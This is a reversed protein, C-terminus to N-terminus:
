PSVTLMACLMAIGLAPGMPVFHGEGLLQRLAPDQPTWRRGSAALAACIAVHLLSGVILFVLVPQLGLWAGAMACFMVDGGAFLNSGRRWGVLLFAASIAASAMALGQIREMPEAAFPSALLGIVTFTATFRDPLWAERWDIWALTLCLWFLVVAWAGAATAGFWLALAAGGAAAAAEIAPYRWPVGARCSRCAGRRVLYGLVPVLSLADIRAGCADCRSPSCLSVGPRPESRWGAAHPLRDVIVGSFSALCASCIAALVAWWAPHDALVAALAGPELVVLSM